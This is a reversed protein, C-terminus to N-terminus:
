MNQWFYAFVLQARMARMCAKYCYHILLTILRDLGSVVLLQKEYLQM